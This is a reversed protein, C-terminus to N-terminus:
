SAGISAWEGLGVSYQPLLGKLHSSFTIEGFNHGLSKPGRGNKTRSLDFGDREQRSQRFDLKQVINKVPIARM